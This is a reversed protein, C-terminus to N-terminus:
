PLQPVVHAVLTDGASATVNWADRATAVITPLIHPLGTPVVRHLFGQDEQPEAVHAAAATVVITAAAARPAPEARRAEPHATSHTARSAHVTRDPGPGSPAAEEWSTRRLISAPVTEAPAMNALTLPASAVRPLPMTDLGDYATPDTAPETARAAFKGGSTLEPRSVNAAGPHPVASWILTAALTAGLSATVQSVWRLVPRSLGSTTRLMM